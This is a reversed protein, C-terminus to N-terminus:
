SAETAVNTAATVSPFLEINTHPLFMAQQFQDVYDDTGMLDYYTTRAVIDRLTERAEGSLAALKAGWISTNGVYLTKAEPLDPLLGIATASELSIYSGFGGAIMLTSVDSFKLDLRDLMIKAAAFIAAKATVINDIDEQFISVPRGRLTERKSALEFRGHEKKFHLGPDSAKILKGARDIIGKKLMVAIVDIIGSGCIGDPKGGGIVDYRIDQGDLYVKEIAGSTAMMGCKVGAGELCPGASASCAILWESNGIIVEGNTGVDILMGIGDMDHMGTALIGAALDGGVWGGIGPLALLLGRPNIKIGVEAARFPPPETTVAIYPERRIHDTPLGLLFHMMATNGACVVATIDRPNVGHEAALASILSNIDEVLLHQLRQPGRKEAAMMRATVERGYTAQSNFCAQAGITETTASDVLHVVITSTGVDVVAIFNKASNDGPEIDMLEAVGRRRGITATVTYNSDRLIRPMRQIVKLGTQVSSVGALKKLHTRVRQGDALNNELTPPDMKLLLRSTIPSKAFAREETGAGLARFRQADEDIVIKEVARTEQPIEVNLDSQVTSQCALVVGRRIDERTLLATADGGVEGQTVIMRCRACIGDGGCVSDISIGAKAAAELLTTGTPVTVTTELPSFVITCDAM